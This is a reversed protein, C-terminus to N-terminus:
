SAGSPADQYCGPTEVGPQRAVIPSDQLSSQFLDGIM